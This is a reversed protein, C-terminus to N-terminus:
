PDYQGSFNERVQNTWGTWGDASKIKAWWTSKGNQTLDGWCDRCKDSSQGPIPLIIEEQGWKGNFWTKVYGEGLYTYLWLVDGRKYEGHKKAVLFRGPVSHVEGTLAVVNSGAKFKGVTKSQRDPSAYATTTKETKWAGYVCSEGPCAGKDIYPSPHQSQAYIPFSFFLLFTLILLPMPKKM